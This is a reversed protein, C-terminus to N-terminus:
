RTRQRSPETFQIDYAIARARDARLRDIVAAHLARPFPWQLRLDSFTKDDIAVVVVDSPVPAQGRVDFRMDLTDNEVRPWAGAAYSALGAVM